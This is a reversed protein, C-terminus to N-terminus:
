ASVERDPHAAVATRSAPEQPAAVAAHSEAEEAHLELSWQALQRLSPNEFFRMIPISIKMRTEISNKLEFVMLSDLGLENLPQSVSIAQPELGTVQALKQRFHETLVEIRAEPPVGMLEAMLDPEGAASEAVDASPAAFESVMAPVHQRFPQLAIPWNVSMVGAQALPQKLLAELASLAAQPELLGLGRHALEERRLATDALGGSAWGGWNISLAPLGQGHRWHALADLFANAAAYNGQGSSGLLSAASSFLVFHDLTADHTARHLNWAGQAKSAMVWAFRDPSMQLLVGDDLLGALHFVGRLLRDSAAIQDIVATVDHGSAVDGAFCTVRVGRERLRSVAAEAKAGPSRRSVLVLATAGHDVLWQALQLGLDGLGGSILYTGESRILPKSPEGTADTAGPSLTVVVKGINKRQSMYRFASAVDSIEFETLPLRGYSGDRFRESLENVLRQILEPRQRYARDMDIAFYSLNNQFPELGIMRNLYIDTKGLELFRGYASLVRLSEPIADGALSNLVVDVGDGGTVQLIDAAFQTSRSDFVHLVGQRKLFDRKEPTGATAYVEAGVARAIQLAAQGVGGAAAHILVKEGPALHALHVLAYHATLYAVPLAAADGFTLGQPKRMLGYTPSLVTKAFCYPALAVVEDGVAWDTVGEGVAAITGACEIGLPVVDDTVGPYLKMAKLIDSFNLGAAAVDIEVVGPPPSCREVPQLVLGDLTASPGVQLRYNAAKQVVDAIHQSTTSGTNVSLPFRRIRPVRRVGSRWATQDEGDDSWLDQWLQEAAGQQDLAPDLDVHRTHLEQHEQVVTRIVGVIPAQLPSGAGPDGDVAHAGRTVVVLRTRGALRSLQQVATALSAATSGVDAPLEELAAEPNDVADLSWCHILGACGPPVAGCQDQLAARLDFEDNQCIVGPRSAGSAATRRIILPKHGHQELLAAMEDGVGFADALVVWPRGGGDGPRRSGESLDRQMWEMRYILDDLPNVAAVSRDEENAVALRRLRLGAIAAVVAGDESYLTLDGELLTSETGAAPTVVRATAWLAGSVPQKLDLTRVGIPLYLGDAGAAQPLAAALVHFAADLVAPHLVFQDRTEAIGPPAVIRGVATGNGSWLEVVGRFLPGYRLGHRALTEYFAAVNVSTPCRAQWESLSPTGDAQGNRSHEHRRIAGTVHQTWKLATAGNQPLPQSCIQFTATGAFEPALVFQMVRVGQKPAILAEQFQVNELIAGDRGAERIAQLGMELYAAGPMVVSTQIKHDVLWPWRALSLTTEYLRSAAAARVRHGLLSGAAAAEEVPELARQPSSEEAKEPPDMWYRVRQFPYTPVVVKSRRHPQEVAEWDVTTGRVFLAALSESLAAWDDVQPKLSGVWAANGQSVCTRGLGILQPAPGIELFVEPRLSELARMGDAFRVTQRLHQTWYAPTFANTTDWLSGTVNSVLPIQPPRYAIQAAIEAFPALIPEMLPSHFAHSVSLPQAGIQRERIRNLLRTVAETAGSIVVSRPGNDAAIVVTGNEEALLPAIETASALIAAMMGTSPLSNMLRAREAVLRLGEELSFVGAVCAAVYEGISHGLVACPQIGWSMWQRALAYEIAFLAPQTFATQHIRQDNAAAQCTLEIISAGLWPRLIRECETLTDRFVPATDYLKRAMGPFQSGQGTFLFAVRAPSSEPVQGRSLTRIKQGSLFADLQQGLEEVTGGRVALREAFPTRGSNASYCFDALREAPTTRLADRYRRAADRLAPESKASVTLVHTGREHATTSPAVIAAEVVFEEMVVHVNTGGFGFSSVGAVRRGRIAPWPQRDRAIQLRSGELRLHPNPTQFHIQPFLERHQMMLAVKIAGALGSVTETHGINAKASGFYCPPADATAAALVEGLANIEIPDGLPTATGHAEIYGVDDPALGASRLARRICTQQAPGSPATIGSTRGDQNAASGRLVALIRDGDRVADRLRKVVLIACGEGRVYGNAAEDFSKCRGDPSLMNAKSFAITVEPSLILNVAGALAQDCEHNRIAQSALHLALLGSSCATDCALSPGRLDFLYSLRNAAISHTNGTGTYADIGSLHHDYQCQITSYDYGGIGIFVGTNTGAFRRRSYGAHEFAEWATEILLRQQPDMRKAERPTIGFFAADFDDVRPLFGGWRTTTKGPAEPRPDYLEDVNWRDPPTEIVGDGGFQLLRLFAELSDAGAFRCSMGVLALPEVPAVARDDGAGAFQPEGGSLYEGLREITPYDWALTPSLETGLWEGLAAALRVARLSDIGFRSLEATPDVEQPACGLEDALVRQLWAEIERASVRRMPTGNTKAPASPEAFSANRTEASWGAILGALPGALYATRCARRQVKGSTTRPLRGPKLLVVAQPPLDHRQGVAERIAAIIRDHDPVPRSLEAVIVLQETDTAEVSFAIAGSPMIAADAQEATQEIDQPYHNAGRVIILDKIRGCVYLEGGHLFGLDGTRLFPGEGSAMRAGFVKASDEPCRWYGQGLSPGCAWIEGVRGDNVPESTEPDVIRVVHGSGTRGCSVLPNRDPEDTEDTAIVVRGNALETRQVTLTAVGTGTPRGSVAVTFEALGYCPLLAQPQFRAASMADAFEQMTAARIPEAGCFAVRWRSLDLGAVVTRDIQRCCLDYLFNPGGSFVARYESIASLWRVPQQVAELPSLMVHHAGAYLAYMATMLGMDHFLPLWEVSVEGPQLGGWEHIYRLNSLVNAQSIMVGRPTTTSGSTYQLFALASPSVAAQIKWDISEGEPSRRHRNAVIVPCGTITAEDSQLAARVDANGLVADFKGSNRGGRPLALPVAVSQALQCALISLLEDIGPQCLIAIRQGALDRRILEGALARVRDRLEAYTLTPEVPTGNRLFTLASQNPHRTARWELLEGLTEIRVPVDDARSMIPSSM